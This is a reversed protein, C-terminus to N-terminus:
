FRGFPNSRSFLLSFINIFIENKINFKLISYCIYLILCLLYKAIGLFYGLLESIKYYYQRM